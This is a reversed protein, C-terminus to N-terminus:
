GAVEAAAHRRASEVRDRGARKAVYLAGDASRLLEEMTAGDQPFTAVGISVTIGGLTQSRHPVVLGRVAARIAEARARASAADSEQLLVTFEEGGYRCVIDEQRVSRALLDGFQALLADGAEHGHGDNFRKFHDLDLMLVSLPLHRRQARLLEREFSAELYRRNFLGTLPDRLSQTRLIDQLKLNALALSMQEGATEAISRTATANADEGLLSLVGLMEGQAMLPVCLHESAGAGALHRCRFADIAGPLPHVQGRRLAWCDDPAFLDAGAWGGWSVAVEVLNQPAGTLQISGAMGPLLRILSDHMGAVAEETSRCGQLMSGLNSFQRLTHGLRLSQELSHGLEIISERLRSETARRRKGERLILALALLLMAVCLTTAVLTVRRTVEASRLSRRQGVEFGSAETALMRTAIADVTQDQERADRFSPAQRAAALGGARYASLTATMGERRADIVRTLERAAERQEPLDAVLVSLRQLEATLRPIGAYYDDLHEAMGSIIHARQDAEADRLTAVVAGIAQEVQLSQVIRANEDIFDGSTRVVQIGIVVPALALLSFLGVLRYPLRRTSRDLTAVIPVLANVTCLALSTPIVGKLLFLAMAWPAHRVAAVRGRDDTDSLGHRM